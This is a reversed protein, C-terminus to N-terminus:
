PAPGRRGVGGRRRDLHRDDHRRGINNAQNLDPVQNSVTATDTVTPVAAANPSITITVTATSGATLTGINATVTSGTVVPNSGITSSAM